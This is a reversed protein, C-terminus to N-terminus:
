RAPAARWGLPFKNITGVLLEALIRDDAMSPHANCGSYALGDFRVPTTWGPFRANVATSVQAVQDYFQPKGMLIVRAQPQKAHLETLFSVYRQRYATQLAPLDPWQEGAHLDTSFDNTGLNVVLLQPRWKPDGPDLHTADDPKLQPYIIPLSRTPSTGNYNRVIGFGSYANLRYDADFRRAVLPGFARQSDTTDHIEQRTCTATPSTNGYGVTYSDGIFEIQRARPRPPLPKADAATYFGIFRFGGEQSETLKELRVVHTGPRLGGVVADVPDPGPHDFRRKEEGDILLRLHDTSTQFRVRVATGTFRGELYAGPWGISLSGDAQQVARGGLYASVPRPAPAAATLAMLAVTAQGVRPLNTM